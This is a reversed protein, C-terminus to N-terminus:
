AVYVGLIFVAFASVPAWTLQYPNLPQWFHRTLFDLLSLRYLKKDSQEVKPSSCRQQKDIFFYRITFVVGNCLLGIFFAPLITGQLAPIHTFLLHGFIGAVIGMLLTKQSAKARFVISAIPVLSVPVWFGMFYVMLSLINSMLLGVIMALGGAVLTFIKTIKILKKQSIDPWFPRVLDNVLLVSSLNMVSDASSMITAILGAAAIGKLGMPITSIITTFANNPDIGPFKLFAVIGIVAVFFLFPAEIAATILISKKMVTVDRNLFFRHMMAPNFPIALSIGLIVLDRTSISLESFYLHSAPIMQFFNMGGYEMLLLNGIAPVSVLLFCFQLVDTFIVSRIGGHATYLIIIGMGLMAGFQLPIGLFVSFIAGIALVQASLHGFMKILASLSVIVQGTKGYYIKIMAGLSQVHNLGKMRPAVVFGMFLDSLVLTFFVYLMPLGYKYIEGALGISTGEGIWTAATTSVMVPLAYNQNGVAFDKFTNVKKGKIYGIWMTAILFFVVIGIDLPSMLENRKVIKM